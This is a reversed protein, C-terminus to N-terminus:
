VKYIAWLVYEYLSRVRVKEWEKRDIPIGLEYAIELGKEWAFVEERLVNVKYKKTYRKMGPKRQTFLETSLLVVHGAEHLLAYLMHEPKQKLGIEIIHEEYFFFSNEVDEIYEVTIDFKEDLEKEITKLYPEIDKYCMVLLLSQSATEVIPNFIVYFGLRFSSVLM